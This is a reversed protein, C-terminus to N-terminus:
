RGFHDNLERREMPPDRADCRPVFVDGQPLRSVYPKLRFDDLWLANDRVFLVFDYRFGEEAERGVASQWLTQMALYLRLLNRNANATRRGIEKSRTDLIPFRLDPDEYPHDMLAMERRASLLPNSDIDIQDQIILEGVSALGELAICKRIREEIIIPDPILGNQLVIPDPQIHKMYLNDLRYPTTSATTVSVYYDVINGETRVMPSILQKVTSDLMYRQLTGAVMVAVRLTTDGQKIPPKNKGDTTTTTTTRSSSAPRDAEERYNSVCRSMSRYYWHCSRKIIHLLPVNDSNVYVRDRLEMAATRDSYSSSSALELGSSVVVQPFSVQDRDSYCHIENLWLCGFNGNFTRCTESRMDWVIFATDVMPNTHFVRSKHTSNNTETEEYLKSYISCQASVTDLGDSLAPRDIGAEAITACHAKLDVRKSYLVAHHDHPLGMFSVCTGFRQVTRNFHLHYDIPMGEESPWDVEPHQFYDAMRPRLLKADQRVVREAWPFLLVPNFKFLKTNRRNNNYPMRTTDVVILIQSGDISHTDNHGELDTVFQFFCTGHRDVAKKNHSGIYSPDHM